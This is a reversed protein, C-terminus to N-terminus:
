TRPATGFGPDSARIIRFRWLIARFVGGLGFLMIALVIWPGTFPIIGAFAIVLGGLILFLLLRIVDLRPVTRGFIWGVVGAAAVPQSLVVIMPLLLLLAIGLGIGLITAALLAAVFVLGLVSLVGCILTTLPRFRVHDVAEGFTNRAFILFVIGVLFISAAFAAAVLPESPKPVQDFWDGPKETVVEGAIQAGPDIEPDSLSRVFLSGGIVAQPGVVVREAVVFVDGDVIGNLTIAAGALKVEGAVRGDLTVSAGAASLTGGISSLPGLSVSAGAAHVNGGAAVDIDVNGGAVMVDGATRGRIAVTAAAAHVDGGIQGVVTVDAGGAWVSGEVEGRVDVVAGAAKVSANAGEVSVRAGAARVAAGGGTISVVSGINGASESPQAVAAATVFVILIALFFAGVSALGGLRHMRDPM